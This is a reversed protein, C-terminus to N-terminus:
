FPSEGDYTRSDYGDEDVLRASSFDMLKIKPILDINVLINRLNIDNHFVGRSICHQVANVLQGMILRTINATLGNEIDIFEKLSMCPQPYEMVMSLTDGGDFWEYMQIVNPCVPSRCLKVMMAVERYLPEPHDPVVIYSDSAPRPGSKIAVAKLTFFVRPIMWPHLRIEELTPRNEPRRELCKRILDQCRPNISGLGSIPRIFIDKVLRFPLHGTLMTALIIGLFWVNTPVAHYKVLELAEPPQFRPAGDYTRSDYGDEDVLRATSFDILKSMPIFDVNVLINRLNIDNHFVGRSICHEVASVLQRMLICAITISVGNEQDIFEKLSMCPQPYEMVMSLSDGGDFWEYMQIVFHSIPPRHLMVMMAVERYLPEPHDPVVIYSDSAPRPGSKIAVTRDSGQTAKYVMGFSGNVLLEKFEYIDSVNGRRASYDSVLETGAAEINESSQLGSPGPVRDPEPQPAPTGSRRFIKRVRRFMERRLLTCLHRRGRRAVRRSSEEDPVTNVSRQLGIPGAPEGSRRFFMRARRFFSCIGRRSRRSGGRSAEDEPVATDPAPDAVANVSGQLGSPGPVPDAEAQPAPVPEGSRRFIKRARRSSSQPLTGNNNNINNSNNRYLSRIFRDEEASTATGGHTPYLSSSVMCCCIRANDATLRLGRSEQAVGRSSDLELKVKVEHEWHGHHHKLLVLEEVPHPKVLILHKPHTQLFFFINGGARTNRLKHAIGKIGTIYVLLISTLHEIEQCFLGRVPLLLKLLLKLLVLHNHIWFVTILVPVPFNLLHKLIVALARIVAGGRTHLLNM